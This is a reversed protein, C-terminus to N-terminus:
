VDSELKGGPLIRTKGGRKELGWFMKDRGFILSANAIMAHLHTAESLKHRHAFYM